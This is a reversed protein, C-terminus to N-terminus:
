LYTQSLYSHMLIHTFRCWWSGTVHLLLYKTTKELLEKYRALWSLIVQKVEKPMLILRERCYHVLPPFEVGALLRLKYFNQFSSNEGGSLCGSHSAIITSLEERTYGNDGFIDLHLKLSISMNMLTHAFLGNKKKFTLPILPSHCVFGLSIWHCTRDRRWQSHRTLNEHWLCSFQM